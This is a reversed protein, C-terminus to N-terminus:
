GLSSGIIIVKLDKNEKNKEIEKSINELDKYTFINVQPINKISMGEFDILIKNKKVTIM